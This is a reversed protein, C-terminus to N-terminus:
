EYAGAVFQEAARRHKRGIALVVEGQRSRPVAAVAALSKAKLM